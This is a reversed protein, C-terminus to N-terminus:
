VGNSDGGIFQNHSFVQVQWPYRHGAGTLVKFSIIETRWVERKDLGVCQGESDSLVGIYVCECAEDVDPKRWWGVDRLMRTPCAGLWRTERLAREVGVAVRVKGLGERSRSEGGAWPVRGM